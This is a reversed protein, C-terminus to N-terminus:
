TKGFVKEAAILIMNKVRNIHITNISEGHYVVIAKKSYFGRLWSTSTKINAPNLKSFIPLSNKCRDEYLMNM